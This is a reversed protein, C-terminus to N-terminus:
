TKPNLKKIITDVTAKFAPDSAVREETRTIGNIVTAHDKGGVANGISKLALVTHKRCLYMVIQRATAIDQSRKKSCIDEVSINMHESVTKVILEPTISVINDKNIIDKLSEKATELTVSENMLKAFVGIKNLAGELERVNTTINEAIYSFVEDPIGKLHDMEAKNKLIAMRTEYDPEHIDIPVGCEFRSIIRQDLTKIEKPPKDSSLIIQKKDNYLSNFTHFFENQTSEKGILFQVDDLLLVDVKRYKERFETTTHNRIADIIENTFVESPVYLVNINDDKQLIYHAIAQMLHTKGLGSNGYLFLPNFNDQAPMDAVALCTAHAHKNGDGVIFTEFTYRPNLNSRSIAEKYSESNIEEKNKKDDESIFNKKEDIIIEINSDNLTERISSLLFLDFEKRRLFKVANEGLKEDVYFYITNDKVEYIKLSRIWTNIMISSIDYQTELLSLIDEWKSEILAKM